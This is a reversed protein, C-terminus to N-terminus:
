SNQKGKSTIRAYQIWYRLEWKLPECEKIKNRLENQYDIYKKYSDLKSWSETLKPIDLKDKAAYLMVNDIPIHLFPFTAKFDNYGVVYLYKITM